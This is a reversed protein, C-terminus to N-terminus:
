RVLVTYTATNDNTFVNFHLTDVEQITPYIVEGTSARVSIDSATYLYGTPMALTQYYLGNGVAAAIWNASTATLTQIAIPAGTVGDHNHNNMLEIDTSLAPFFQDGTDPNEPQLYGYSLTNM